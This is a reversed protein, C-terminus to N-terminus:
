LDVSLMEKFWKFTEDLKKDEKDNPIYLYLEKRSRTLLVRYVNKIINNIDKIEKYTRADKAVVWKGNEIYYDGVFAVIPCELEIGQVLFESAGRTFKRSEKAYWNYSEEAKVYSGGYNEGFYKKNNKNLHSSVIIGMHNKPNEKEVYDRIRTFNNIIGTETKILRNRFLWCKFGKKLIETYYEKAKELNLDLIAEVWPGLDIFDNRISTNLSLNKNIQKNKIKEFEDEYKTPIFINWDEKNELARIWLNMGSEEHKHIAQGDGILCIITVKGYKDAIKEGIKLLLTAETESSKKYDTDWARQAEDFVIIDNLPVTNEYANKKFKKMEQIYSKGDLIIKDTSLTNQLINVLPDNGSLYIPKLENNDSSIRAYGHDYVTKLGVLTKGAGPVGSIFIINKKNKNKIINNIEDLTNKIDGEKITKINPLEGYKFLNLTAEAINQLPNFESEIWDLTLNKTITEGDLKNKIEEKFNNKSLIDVLKHNGRPEELTYVMYDLVEMKKEGTVNHYYKISQAYGKVQTLDRKTIENKMKFELIIVKSDTLIIVDARKNSDPMIYEFILPFDDYREEKPLNDILFKYCDEWSYTNLEGTELLCVEKVFKHCENVFDEKTYKERLDRITTVVAAREM